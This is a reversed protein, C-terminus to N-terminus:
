SLCTAPWSIRALSVPWSSYPFNWPEVGFIVGIPSSEMHGEGLTPHLEVNALFREANEAYYALINSSFEVEGRAESIHKGMERTEIQAFYEAEDHLLAAAKAVIARRHAYSTHKWADFCSSAIVMKEELQTDTIDRFSKALKNDFPNVSEYAM